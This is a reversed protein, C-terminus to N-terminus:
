PQERSRRVLSLVYLGAGAGWSAVLLAPHLGWITFLFSVVILAMGLRGILKTNM